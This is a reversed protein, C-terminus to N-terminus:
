LDHERSQADTISECYVPASQPVLSHLGAGRVGKHNVKNYTLSIEGIFLKCQLNTVWMYVFKTACMCVCVGTCVCVFVCVLKFVCEYVCERVRMFVCMCVVLNACAQVFVCVCVCVCVCVRMQVPRCRLRRGRPLPPLPASLWPMM